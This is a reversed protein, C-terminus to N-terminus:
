KNIMQFKTLERVAQGRDCFELLASRVKKSNSLQSLLM